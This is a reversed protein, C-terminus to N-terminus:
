VLTISRTSSYRSVTETNISDSTRETRMHVIEGEEKVERSRTERKNQVCETHSTSEERISYVWPKFAQITRSSMDPSRISKTMACMHGIKSSIRLAPRGATWLQTTAPGINLATMNFRTGDSACERPRGLQDITCQFHSGISGSKMPMVKGKMSRSLLVRRPM